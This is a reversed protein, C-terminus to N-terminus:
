EIDQLIRSSAAEEIEKFAEKTDADMLIGLDSVEVRVISEQCNILAGKLGQNGDYTCIKPVLSCDIIIPHGGQQQYVPKAVLAKYAMLTRLTEVNFLPIDGPTFFVRECQNAIAKLGLKASDFMDTGQYYPNYICKIGQPKLYAELKEAQYGTVVIIQTVGAERMTDISYQIMPKGALLKLPKFAKMRSSLGAAVIVAGISLKAKEKM